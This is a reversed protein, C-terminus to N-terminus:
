EPIKMGKAAAQSKLMARIAEDFAKEKADQPQKKEHEEIYKARKASLDTVLKAIEEREAIKKKIHALKEDKTMKRMEEPLDEDKIATIDFKADTKFKDCLDWDCKYLKSAKFAGRENAAAGSARTANADQALQNEAGVRGAWGCALYTTNIKSNLEDIAKDFPTAVVPKNKNQDIVAHKGGSIESFNRWAPEEQPKGYQCYITNIIVDKKKALNAVSSLSVEKDQDVAENGCVFIIRLANKDESWKLDTLADRSVRAVLETGGNTRLKNIQKYLEDLDGTLDSEKKVWGTKPDLTDHGYSFLAVRLTPTPEVKALDNVIRWLKVKASEILGDMSGSTDLLIAVDVNQSPSEARAAGYGAFSLFLALFWKAKM